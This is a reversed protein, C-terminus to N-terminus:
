EYGDGLDDQIIPWGKMYTGIINYEIHEIVRLYADDKNTDGDMELYQEVLLTYSYILVGDEEGIIAKDLSKRPELYIM